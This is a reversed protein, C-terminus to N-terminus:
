LSSIRVRDQDVELDLIQSEREAQIRDVLAKTQQTSVTAIMPLPSFDELKLAMLIKEQLELLM